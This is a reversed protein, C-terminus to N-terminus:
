VREMAGIAATKTIKKVKKKKAAKMPKKKAPMNGGKKINDLEEAWRMMFKYGFCKECNGDYSM